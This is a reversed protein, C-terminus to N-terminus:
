LPKYLGDKTAEIKQLKKLQYVYDTIQRKSFGTKELLEKRSIGDKNEKIVKLVTGSLTKKARPTRKAAPKTQKTKIKPESAIETSVSKDPKDLKDLNAQLNKIGESLGRLTDKFATALEKDFEISVDVKM